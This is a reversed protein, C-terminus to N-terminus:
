HSGEPPSLTDIWASLNTINKELMKQDYEDQTYPGEYTESATDVLYYICDDVTSEDYIFDSWEQWTPFDEENKELVRLGIYQENKCFAVIFKELVLGKENHYLFIQSSNSRVILYEGPFDDYRWDSLAPFCGVLTSLLICILITTVLIKKM